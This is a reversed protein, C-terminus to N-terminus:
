EARDEISGIGPDPALASGRVFVTSGDHRQVRMYTDFGSGVEPQDLLREGPSLVVCGDRLAGANAHSADLEALTQRDRCGLVGSSKVMWVEAHAPLSVATVVAVIARRLM